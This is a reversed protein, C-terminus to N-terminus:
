SAKFAYILGLDINENKSSFMENIEFNNKQLISILDQHGFHYEMMIYKINKFSNNKDMERFIDYESGEVDIKMLIPYENGIKDIEASINKITCDIMEAKSRFLHKGAKEFMGNAGLFDRHYAIQLTSEKAGLGYCCPTIKNSISPNISFNKVAIAHTPPFLEYGYVSNVYDNSAFYLCTDGINMGIDMVNVKKNLIFNYNRHIFVLDILGLDNGSHIVLKVPKGNASFSAVLQGNEESFTVGQERLSNARLLNNFFYPYKKRSIGKYRNRFVFIRLKNEIRAILHKLSLFIKDM